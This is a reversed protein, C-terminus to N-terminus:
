LINGTWLPVPLTFNAAPKSSICPFFVLDSSPIQSFEVPPLYPCRPPLNCNLYLIAQCLLLDKLGISQFFLRFFYMVNNNSVQIPSVQSRPDYVRVKSDKSITALRTGDSKWAM